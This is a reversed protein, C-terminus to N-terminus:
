RFSGLFQGLRVMSNEKIERSWGLVDKEFCLIVTSGLLFQGLQEGKELTISRDGDKPYVKKKFKEM